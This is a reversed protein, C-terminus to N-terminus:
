KVMGAVLLTYLYFVFLAFTIVMMGYVKSRILKKSMDAEGQPILMILYGLLSGAAITVWVPFFLNIFWFFGNSIEKNYQTFLSITLNVIFLTYFLGSLRPHIGLKKM